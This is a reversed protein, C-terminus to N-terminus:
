QRAQGETEKFMKQTHTKVRTSKVGNEYVDM